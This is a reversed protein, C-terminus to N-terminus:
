KKNLNMSCRIYDAYGYFSWLIRTSLVKNFVLNAILGCNKM